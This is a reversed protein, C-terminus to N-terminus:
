TFYIYLFIVYKYKKNLYNFNMMLYIVQYIQHIRNFKINHFGQKYRGYIREMYEDLERTKPINRGINEIYWEKFVRHLPTKMIVSGEEEIIKDSIFQAYFDQSNKYNKSRAMVIDCDNVIGRTKFAINALM